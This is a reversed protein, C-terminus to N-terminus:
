QDFGPEYRLEPGVREGAHREDKGADHQHLHDGGAGHAAADRRRDRAREAAAPTILSVRQRHVGHDDINREASQEAGDHEAEASPDIAREAARAAFEVRSHGIRVHHKGAAHQEPQEVAQRADDTAGAIHKNRCQHDADPDHHQHRQRRQQDEADARERREADGAAAQREDPEVGGASRHEGTVDQGPAIDGAQARRSRTPRKNRSIRPTPATAATVETCVLTTMASAVASTAVAAPGAAAAPYPVEARSSYRSTGSTKPRPAGNTASTPVLTPAPSCLRASRMAKTPPASANAIVSAM